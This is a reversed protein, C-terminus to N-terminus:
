LKLISIRHTLKHGECLPPKKSDDNLESYLIRFWATATRENELVAIKSDGSKKM